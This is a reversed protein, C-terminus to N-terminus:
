NDLYMCAMFIADVTCKHPLTKEKRLIVNSTM